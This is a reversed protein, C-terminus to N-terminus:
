SRLRIRSSLQYFVSTRKSMCQEWHLKIFLSFNYANNLNHKKGNIFGDLSTVSHSKRTYFGLIFIILIITLAKTTGLESKHCKKIVIKM